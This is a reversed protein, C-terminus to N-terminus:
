KLESIIVKGAKVSVNYDGEVLCKINQGEALEFAGEPAEEVFDANMQGVWTGKGDAEAQVVQFEDDAVFHYNVGNEGLVLEEAPDDINWGNISGVLKYHDFEFKEEYPVGELEATKILAAGFGCVEASSAEKYQAVVFTYVGAGGRCVPNQDWAFGDEDAEEQWTPYFINENLAEVHATKPDSIWQDNIYTEDEEDYTCRLAKVTYSGNAVKIEGGVTKFNAKWGADSTGIELGEAVYLYKLNRKALLAGVEADLKSVEELTADKMLNAASPDWSGYGGVHHFTYGDAEASYPRAAPKSPTPTVPKSPTPTVPKSPTPEVSPTPTSQKTPTPNPKGGCAVLGGLLLAGVALSLLKKM